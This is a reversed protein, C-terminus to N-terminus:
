GVGKTLSAGLGSGTTNLGTAGAGNILGTIGGSGLTTRIPLFIM